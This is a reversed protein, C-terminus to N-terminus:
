NTLAVWIRFWNRYSDNPVSRFNDGWKGQSDRRSEYRLLPSTMCWTVRTEFVHGTALIISTAVESTQVELYGYCRTRIYLWVENIRTKNIQIGWLEFVSKSLRRHWKRNKKGLEYTEWDLSMKFSVLSDPYLTLSYSYICVHICINRSVLAIQTLVINSGTSLKMHGMKCVYVFLCWFEVGTIWQLICWIGAISPLFLSVIHWPTSLSSNGLMFHGHHCFDQIVHGQFVRILQEALSKYLRDFYLHLTFM